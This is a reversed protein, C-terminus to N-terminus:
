VWFITKKDVFDIDGGGIGSVVVAESVIHVCDITRVREDSGKTYNWKM